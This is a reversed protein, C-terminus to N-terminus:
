QKDWPMPALTVPKPRRATKKPQGGITYSSTADALAQRMLRLKKQDNAKLPPMGKRQAVPKM